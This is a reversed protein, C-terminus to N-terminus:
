KDIESGDREGGTKRFPGYATMVEIEEEVAAREAVLFREVADRFGPDAIWHLSHV